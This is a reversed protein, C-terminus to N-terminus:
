VYMEIDTELGEKIYTIVIIDYGCQYVCMLGPLNLAQPLIHVYINALQALDQM